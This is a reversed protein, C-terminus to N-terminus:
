RKSLHLRKLPNLHLFPKDGGAYLIVVFLIRVFCLMGVLIYMLIGFLFELAFALFLLIMPMLLVFCFYYYVKGPAIFVEGDFVEEVGSLLYLM